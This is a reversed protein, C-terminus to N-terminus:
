YVVLKGSALGGDVQVTYFYFGSQWHSVDFVRENPGTVLNKMQRLAVQKGMMDYVIIEGKAFASELSFRINVSLHVPNPHAGFLEIISQEEVADPNCQYGMGSCYSREMLTCDLVFPNPKNSQIDAIAWTRDWEKQDVADQYHWACLTPIMGQFYSQDSQAHYMTYFYMMARAVNGKHVERPEFYDDKDLESYEDINQNPVNSSENTGWYWTTTHSDNIDKFPLHGRDGNVDILTPFLHHVDSKANGTAGQSQPFTHETNFGKSYAQGKFDSNNPNLYIRHNTYVCYISDNVNDIEGFMKNRAAGYSFVSSPKYNNELHDLLTSGQEGTLVDQHFQSQGAQAFLLIFLLVFINKM